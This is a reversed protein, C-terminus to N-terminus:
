VTEGSLSLYGSVIKPTGRRKGSEVMSLLARDVGIEAALDAQTVGSKRRILRLEDASKTPTFGGCHPCTNHRLTFAKM